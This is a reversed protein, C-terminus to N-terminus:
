NRASGPTFSMPTRTVNIRPGPSNQTGREAAAPAPVDDAAPQPEATTSQLDQDSEPPETPSPEPRAEAPSPTEASPTGSPTPLASPTPPTLRSPHPKDPTRGLGDNAILLALAVVLAAAAIMILSLILGPRRYFPPGVPHQTGAGPDGDWGCWEDQDRWEDWAGWEDWAACDDVVTDGHQDILWDSLDGEPPAERDTM